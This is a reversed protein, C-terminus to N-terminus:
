PVAIKEPCINSQNIQIECTATKFLKCIQKSQFDTKNKLILSWTDNNKVLYSKVQNENIFETHKSKLEQWIESLVSQDNNIALIVTNKGALDAEFLYFSAVSIMNEEFTLKFDRPQSHCLNIRDIEKKDINLKFKGTPVDRIYAFGDFETKGKMIENKDDFITLALNSAQVEKGNNFLFVETDLEGTMIVPIQIEHTTNKSLKIKQDYEGEIMYISPLSKKNLVLELNNYPTINTIILKGDKDTKENDYNEFKINEIPKEDKDKIGNNNEDLFVDVAIVSQDVLNKKSFYIINKYPDFGFNFDFGFEFSFRNQDSYAIKSKLNINKYQNKYSIYTNHSYSEMLLRREIGFTISQDDIVHVGQLTLKSLKPFHESNTSGGINIRYDKISKRLQFSYDIEDKSFDDTRYDIFNGLTFYDLNFTTRLQTATQHHNDSISHKYKISYPLDYFIYIYGSINSDIMYNVNERNIKEILKSSYNNFVKLKTDFNYKKYKTKFILESALGGSLDVATHTQTRAGLFTGEYGFQFYSNDDEINVISLSLNSMNKLGYWLDLSAMTKKNNVKTTEIVNSRQNVFAFDFLLKNRPISNLPLYIKQEKSVVQGFQNYIDIRIINLGSYLKIESQFKGEENPQDIFDILNNNHFIDVYNEDELYDEVLYRNSKSNYGLSPMNTYKFGLGSNSSNVLPTSDLTVNGFEYETGYFDFLKNKENKNSVKFSFNTVDSRRINLNFDQQYLKSSANLDLLESRKAQTLRHTYKLSLFPYSFKKSPIPELYEVSPDDSNLNIKERLKEKELREQFPLPIKEEVMISLENFKINVILPFIAEFLSKNVYLIDDIIKLKFDSLPINSNNVNLIGDILNLEFEIDNVKSELTLESTDFKIKYELESLFENFPLYFIDNEFDFYIVLTETLLYKGAQLSFILMDDDTLHKNQYDEKSYANALNNISCFLVVVFLLAKAM